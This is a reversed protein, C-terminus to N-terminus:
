ARPQSMRQLEAARGALAALFDPSSCPARLPTAARRRASNPLPHPRGPRPPSGGGDLVLTKPLQAEPHIRIAPRGQPLRIRHLRGKPLGIRLDALRLVQHVAAPNDPRPSETLRVTPHMSHNCRTATTLSEWPDSSAQCPVQTSSGGGM